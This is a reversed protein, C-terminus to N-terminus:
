FILEFINELYFKIIYETQNRDVIRKRKQKILKVWYNNNKAKNQKNIKLNIRNKHCLKKHIEKNSSYSNNNRLIIIM